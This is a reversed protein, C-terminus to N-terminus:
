LFFIQSSGSVYLALKEIGLKETLDTGVAFDTLTFPTVILGQSLEGRLKITKVRFFETALTM